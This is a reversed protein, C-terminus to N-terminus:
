ATKWYKRKVGAQQQFSRWMRDAKSQIEFLDKGSPYPLNFDSAYQNIAEREDGCLDRTTIVGHACAEIHEKTWSM